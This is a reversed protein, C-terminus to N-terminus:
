NSLQPSLYVAEWRRHDNDSFTLNVTISIPLADRGKWDSKVLGDEDTYTFTLSGARQLLTVDQQYQSDGSLIKRTAVLRKQEDLWYTILYLGGVERRTDGATVFSLKHPEGDLMLKPEQLSKTDLHLQASALEEKMMEAVADVEDQAAIERSVRDANRLSSLASLAYIAMLSVLALSVLMEVLSFGSQGNDIPGQTM